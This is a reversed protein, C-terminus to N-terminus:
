SALLKRFAKVTPIKYSQEGGKGVYIGENGVFNYFHNGLSFGLFTMQSNTITM